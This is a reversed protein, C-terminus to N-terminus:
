VFAIGEFKMAGIEVDELLVKKEKLDIVSLFTRQTGEKDNEESKLTM